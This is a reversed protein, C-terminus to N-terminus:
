ESKENEAENEESDAEAENEETPAEKEQIAEETDGSKEAEEADEEEVEEEPEEEPEEVVEASGVHDPIEDSSAARSTKNISKKTKGFSPYSTSGRSRSGSTDPAAEGYIKIQVSDPGYIVVHNINKLIKKIAKELPLDVFRVTIPLNAWAEECVIKDGSKRSLEDLVAGLPKDQIQMSIVNGAADGSHLPLFIAILVLIFGARRMFIFIRNFCFIRPEKNMRDSWIKRDGFIKFIRAYYIGYDSPKM